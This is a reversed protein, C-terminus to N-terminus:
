EREEEEVTLTNHDRFSDRIMAKLEGAQRSRPWYLKWQSYEWSGLTERRDIRLGGCYDAYVDAYIGAMADSTSERIHRTELKVQDKILQRIYETEYDAFNLLNEDEMGNKGAWGSVDAKKTRYDMIGPEQWSFIGYQCPPISIADSVIEWIGYGQDSPEKQHKKTRQLHLHGSVYVPVHYQELLGLVENGNELVCMTTYMNSESLLNHHGLVIVQIEQEKAAQLNEEMWAYTEPRVMGEVLNEPEYRATDLLMLWIGDRLPYVYSFSAEDRSLAQDWGFRRYIETFEEPTVGPAKEARDGFYVSAERNNIDHNGPIVLVQVGAEQLRSLREALELHNAKEGNMTIDGTLILADPREAMAEDLLTELIQPLYEVSKGDSKKVLTQFAEGYDTTSPSMYHLDSVLFLNPLGTEKGDKTFASERSEEQRNEEQRTEPQETEGNEGTGGKGASVPIENRVIHYPLSPMGAFASKEGGSLCLLVAM